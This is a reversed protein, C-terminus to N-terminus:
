YLLKYSQSEDLVRKDMIKLNKLYEEVLENASSLFSFFNPVGFFRVVAALFFTNFNYILVFEIIFIPFTCNSVDFM